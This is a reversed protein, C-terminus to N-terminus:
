KTKIQLVFLGVQIAERRSKLLVSALLNEKINAIQRRFM